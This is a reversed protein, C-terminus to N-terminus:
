LTNKREDRKIERPSRVDDQAGKEIVQVGERKKKEILRRWSHPGSVYANPDGPHDALQSMYIPDPGLRPDMTGVTVPQIVVHVPSGCEPCTRLLEDKLKEWKYIGDRCTVCAGTPTDARYIRTPV